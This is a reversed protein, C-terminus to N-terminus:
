YIQQITKVPYHPDVYGGKKQRKPLEVNVPALPEHPVSDVIHRIINLRAKKKDDSPVLYWPAWATDTRKFMEDRARSYDYWHKYSNV